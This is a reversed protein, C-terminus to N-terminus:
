FSELPKGLVGGGNVEDIARMAGYVHRTSPIEMM